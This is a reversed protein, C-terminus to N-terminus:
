RHRITVIYPGDNVALHNLHTHVPYASFVTGGKAWLLRADSALCRWLSTDHGATDLPKIILNNLGPCSCLMEDLCSILPPHVYNLGESFTSPDTLPPLCGYRKLTQHSSEAPTM